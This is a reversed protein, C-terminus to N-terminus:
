QRRGEAQLTGEYVGLRGSPSHGYLLVRYTGPNAPLDFEVRATGDAVELAPHWLVTDAYPAAGPQQRYAYERLREAGDKDAAAGAKDGARKVREKSDGAPAAAGKKGLLPVEQTTGAGSGREHRQATGPANAGGPATPAAFPRKQLDAFRRAMEVVGHPKQKAQALLARNADSQEEAKFTAAGEAKKAELGGRGAGTASKPAATATADRTERVTALLRNLERPAAKQAGARQGQHEPAADGRRANAQPFAPWEQGSLGALLKGDSEGPRRLDGTGLYLGVCAGLAVLATTFATRPSRSNGAARVTGVALLLVGAGFLILLAVVVGHRLYDRPLEEFRSLELAAWRAEELRRGRDGTLEERRREAQARLETQRRDRAAEYAKRVEDPNNGAILVVPVGARAQSRAQAATVVVAGGRDAHVFHRWGHTGLFLDLARHAPPTDALLFDADELGEPERVERRLYFHAPPGAEAQQGPVCLVKRDVVAALLWALTPAGTETRAQVRLEARAATAFRLPQGAGAKGAASLVLYEAPARYVLREALPMLRGQGKACVTVRIVGRTGAVPTLEVAAGKVDARVAKQDVLRGRCSALVLLDRGARTDRVTLRLPEGEKGVPNAASLVVGGPQVGVPEVRVRAGKPSLLKLSYVEGAQPTFAVVAAGVREAAEGGIKVRAIELGQRDVVSGELPVPRGQADRALVYVRGPVGAILDGGEPFLAVRFEASASAPKPAVPITQVVREDRTGDHVRVQLKLLSDTATLAPPVSFKFQAEGAQDTRLQLPRGPAAGTLAVPKGGVEAEVTLPQHPAAQGNQQLRGRFTAKGTDGPGYQARDFQLVPAEDRVILVRRSEPPLYEASAGAASVQLTYTGEALDPTLAFKGGAIGHRTEAQLQRVPRNHADLLTCTLRLEPAPPRLSFRDLTLSRFFLYEGSRYAPKSTVLHTAHTAGTVSLLEAVSERAAGRRAEVELRPVSGPRVALGEPLRLLLDGTSDLEKEFLTREGAPTADILRATVKAKVADGLPGRTVVHYQSPAGPQYSAPGVVQLHLFDAEVQAPVAAAAQEYTQRAVAFGADVSEVERRAHVLATERAALGGRYQSVGYVGGGVLLLVAAAAAWTWRRVPRSPRPPLPLTAPAPPPVEAPPQAPAQTATPAPAPTEVAPAAETTPASFAPVDAYVQAARALLNQQSEAEALAARCAPCSVLHARLGQAEADELLGYLSDLLLNACDDCTFM